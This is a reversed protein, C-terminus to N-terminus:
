KKTIVTKAKSWPSYFKEGNVTMYTRIRVYYKKGGKLKSVKKSVKSYGKVTVTKKNKKFKSDTALQIQYGTIRKKAMKASQKKWKVTAAKKGKVPKSLTAGKPNIRYKAKTTGTYNGKGTITVTYSGVNKSSANSWKVSYDTGSKLTKGGITKIAPKRVKGNFTYANASLVVKADQISVPKAPAPPITEAVTFDGASLDAAPVSTDQIVNSNALYCVNGSVDEAVFGGIRYLGTTEQELSDITASWQWKGTKANYVMPIPGETNQSEPPNIYLVVNKLDSADTIEISITVTDGVTAVKEGSSIEVTLSSVNFVPPEAETSTDNKDKFVACLVVDEEAIFPGSPDTSGANGIPRIQLEDIGAVIQGMFWGVFEYGDDPAATLQASAGKTMIHKDITHTMDEAGLTYSGGQGCVKNTRDYVGISVTVDSDEEAFVTGATVPMMAFVMLIAVIMALLNKKKM